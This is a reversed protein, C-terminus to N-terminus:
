WWLDNFYKFFLALGKQQRDWDTDFDNFRNVSREMAYIMEDLAENWNEENFTCPHSKCIEKYRKLRPLIFKAITYDLSWTESDDWGRIRRQFWFKISRKFRGFPGFFKIM